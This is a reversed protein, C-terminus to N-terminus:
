PEDEGVMMFAVGGTGEKRTREGFRGDEREVAHALPARRRHADTLAVSDRQRALELKWMRQPQQVRGERVVASELDVAALVLQHSERRVATRDIAVQNGFVEDVD